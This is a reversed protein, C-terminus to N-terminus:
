ATWSFRSEKLYILSIPFRSLEQGKEFPICLVLSKYRRSGCEVIRWPGDFVDFKDSQGSLTDERERVVLDGVQFSLPTSRIANQRDAALRARESETILGLLNVPPPPAQLRIMQQGQSQSHSQSQFPSQSHTQTKTPTQSKSRNQARTPTQSHPQSLLHPSLKAYTKSPTLHMSASLSGTQLQPTSQLWTRSQPTSHPLMKRKRSTPGYDYPHPVPSRKREHFGMLKKTAKGILGEFDADMKSGYKDFATYCCHKLISMDDDSLDFGLLM